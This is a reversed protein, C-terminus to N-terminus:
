QKRARYLTLKHNCRKILSTLRSAAAMSKDHEKIFDLAFKVQARALENERTLRRMTNECDTLASDVRTRMHKSAYFMGLTPQNAVTLAYNSLVEHLADPRDKSTM